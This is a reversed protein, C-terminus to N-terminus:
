NYRFNCNVEDIRSLVLGKAWYHRNVFDNYEIPYDTKRKVMIKNGNFIETQHKNEFMSYDKSYLYKSHFYENSIMGRCKSSDAFSAHAAKCKSTGSM